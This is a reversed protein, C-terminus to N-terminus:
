SEHSQFSSHLSHHVLGPQDDQNVSAEEGPLGPPTSPPVPSSPEFEESPIGDVPSIAPDLAYRQELTIQCRLIEPETKKEPRIHFQTVARFSKESQLSALWEIIGQLGGSVVVTRSFVRQND